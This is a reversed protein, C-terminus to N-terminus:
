RARLKTHLHFENYVQYFFGRGNKTSLSVRIVSYRQSCHNAGTFVINAVVLLDPPLDLLYKKPSSISEASSTQGRRARWNDDIGIINVFKRWIM